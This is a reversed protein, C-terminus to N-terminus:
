LRLRTLTKTATVSNITSTLRMTGETGPTQTFDLTVTGVRTSQVLAPNFAQGLAAGGATHFVEATYHTSDTWSGSPITFWDPQGGNGYIFIAGFLQRTPGQHLLLGWGSEAANWWIGSFDTLPRPPPPFIAIEPRATVEFALTELPTGTATTNPYLEVRYQGVPFAGLRVDAVRAEGVAFCNNMQQTVKIVNAAMTVRVTSPNFVCSDVNMRLDVPDYEAPQDPVIRSAAAANLSLALFSAVLLTKM